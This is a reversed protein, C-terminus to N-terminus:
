ANPVVQKIIRVLDQGGVPKVLWGTAGLKKAEERKDQQSETTLTLIPVFRLLQRVNRIFDIGNMNPMNIDTIILDPKQITKLKGLADVGDCATDVKFGSMELTQRLSMLMTASDDVLLISKM